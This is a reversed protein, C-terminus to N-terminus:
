PTNDTTSIMTSCQRQKQKAASKRPHLANKTDTTVTSACHRKSPPSEACNETKYGAISSQGLVTVNMNFHVRRRSAPPMSTSPSGSTAPRMLPARRRSPPPSRLLSSGWIPSLGRMTPSPSRVPSPRRMYVEHEDGGDQTTEQQGSGSDEVEYDSLDTNYYLESQLFFDFSTQKRWRGDSLGSWGPEPDVDKLLVANEDCFNM